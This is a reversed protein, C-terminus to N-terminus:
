QKGVGPHVLELIDEKTEVLTIIRACGGRLAAHTRATFMVIQFVDTVGCTVVGEEFHQTVEAEAIIEFVISDLVCPFQQGTFVPEVQRFLTQPNGNVFGVVFGIFDPFFFYTDRAFTNNADAIVFACRVRRVVEPLHAIGTWATWAGFDEVIMAIVDPTARRTACFFVTVTVNLDPVDDEHLEVTLDVAGHLRQRLWGYIGTHTQLTNGCYQLMNVGVIVDIQEAVQNLRNGFHSACGIQAVFGQANNSVM